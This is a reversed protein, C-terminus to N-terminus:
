KDIKVADIIPVGASDCGSTRFMVPRATAIAMLLYSEIMKWNTANDAYIILASPDTCSSPNNYGSIDVYQAQQDAFARLGEVTTWDSWNSANALPMLSYICLGILFSKGASM